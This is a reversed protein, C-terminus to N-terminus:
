VSMCPCLVEWVAHRAFGLLVNLGDAVPDVGAADVSMQVGCPPWPMAAASHHRASADPPHAL